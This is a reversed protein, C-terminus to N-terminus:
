PKAAVPLADLMKNMRDIESGQDASVDNAFKFVVEDQAAGNSGFLKEVMTLAGTHHQIMFTLFRRDFEMGRSADLQKMQEETLMGPMLMVHDMGPMKMGMMGADPVPLNHDRLWRQMTAIEDEQANIIRAAMIQLSPSAGHTPAWKAMVIAQSHHGIMGSMFEVDPAAAARAVSAGAPAKAPAPAGAPTTSSYHSCGSLILGLAVIVGARSFDTRM